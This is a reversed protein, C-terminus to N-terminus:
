RTFYNGPLVQSDGLDVLAVSRFLDHMGPLAGRFHWGPGRHGCSGDCTEEGKDNGAPTDVVPRTGIPFLM